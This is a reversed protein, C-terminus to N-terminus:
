VKQKRGRRRNGVRAIGGGAGKGRRPNEQHEAGLCFGEFQADFGSCSESKTNGSNMEFSNRKNNADSTGSCSAYSSSSCSSPNLTQSTSGFGDLDSQFMEGFLEQLEEFTEGNENSKNQSMMVAMENLFDGMGNEDDDCDYFGVDYMFRKNADSLVSYAEQIAQFKKKSEEIFKSSGSASCRDPHWRLALNKYANRLETATCEKKLGLVAYFDSSKEEGAAM